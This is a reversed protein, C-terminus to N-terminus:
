GDATATQDCAVSQEHEHLWWTRSTEVDGPSKRVRTVVYRFIPRGCTRCTAHEIVARPSM